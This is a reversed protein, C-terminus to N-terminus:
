RCGTHNRSFPGTIMRDTKIITNVLTSKGVNPKGLVAIRLPPEGDENKGSVALDGLALAIDDLLEYVNRGHLASIGRMKVEGVSHFNDVFKEHRGHDIKNVFCFIKKGSKRLMRMIEDDQPVPNERGNLLMLVLDAEEIAIEAQEKAGPGGGYGGLPELGATDVISFGVGNWSVDSYIRDRTVGPVTEVIAKDTGTIRNFLTSKGVNPRGVIAVLPVSNNKHEARM